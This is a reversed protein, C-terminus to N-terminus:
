HHDDPNGGHDLSAARVVDRALEGWAPLAVETYSAIRAAVDAPQRYGGTLSPRFPREAQWHAIADPVTRPGALLAIIEEPRIAPFRRAPEWHSWAEIFASQFDEASIDLEAIGISLAAVALCEAVVMRQSWPSLRVNIM